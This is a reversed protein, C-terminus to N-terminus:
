SQPLEILGRELATTVASTRDGVGLEEFIHLLHTKVTAESIRLDRAIERNSAGRAVLRLVQLERATLPAPPGSSGGQVRKLLRAAVSPALPSGGAVVSRVSAFLTERPADKLLYGAAGAEIAALIRADSDYTTLVLVPVPGPLARIRRIAETGDMGPMQLDMLVIDPHDRIVADLAAAGDAAEGAVSFGPETEFMGRLGARVVPHDDVILLRIPGTSGAPGTAHSSGPQRM